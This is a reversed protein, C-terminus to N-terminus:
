VGDDGKRPIESSPDDLGTAEHRLVHGSYEDMGANRVVPEVRDAWSGAGVLRDAEGRRRVVRAGLCSSDALEGFLSAPLVDGHHRGRILHGPRADEETTAKRAPDLHDNGLLVKRPLGPEPLSAM